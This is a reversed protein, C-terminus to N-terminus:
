SGELPVYGSKKILEQGQESRMWEIFPDVNENETGNTIAYFEATLPYLDKQISPIDPAEGNIHLLKIGKNNVMKTAFHRYSFGISNRHNRYNSAKEIVGGMGTVRQDKPADMIPTSGMMNELGTQSGSGEPRQFALIEKDKGGVESWNTIQGSYIGRLQEITLSDVPNSEHVFFVFAEKGIPTMKMNEGLAKRQQESPGATFIIDAEGEQLREYAGNTKSVVVANDPSPEHEYTKEPYTAEVFAAYVPYLATAGDLEPVEGDIKYTSPEDLKVVENDETFPEYASLDVEADKIEIRDIYLEYGGYGVLPIAFLSIMTMLVAKGSMKKLIGLISLNISILFAAFVIGVYVYGNENSMLFSIVTIFYGLIGFVGTFLIAGTIRLWM